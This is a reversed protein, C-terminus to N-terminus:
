ENNFEIQNVNRIFNELNKQKINCLLITMNNKKILLYCRKNIDFELEFIKGLDSELQSHIHILQEESPIYCTDSKSKSFFDYDMYIFQNQPYSFVFERSGYIICKKLPRPLSITFPSPSITTDNITYAVWPKFHFCISDKFPIFVSKGINMYIPKDSKFPNHVFCSSFQILILFGLFVRITLKM